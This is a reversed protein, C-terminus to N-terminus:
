RGVSDEALSSPARPPARRGAHGRDSVGPKRRTQDADTRRDRRSGQAGRARALGERRDRGGTRRAKRARGPRARGRRASLKAQAGYALEGTELAELVARLDDSLSAQEHQIASLRWRGLDHMQSALKGIRTLSDVRKKM